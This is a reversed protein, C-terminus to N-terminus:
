KTLDYNSLSGNAVNYKYAHVGDTAEVAVIITSIPKTSIVKTGTTYEVGLENTCYRVSKIGVIDSSVYIDAMYLKWFLFGSTHYNVKVRIYGSDNSGEISCFKCHGDEFTCSEYENLVMGCRSCYKMHHTEDLNTYAPAHNPEITMSYPTPTLSYGNETLYYTTSVTKRGFLINWLFFGRSVKKTVTQSFVGNDYTWLTGGPGSVLKGSQDTINWGGIVKTYTYTRNDGLGVTISHGNEANTFHVASLVDATKVSGIADGVTVVIPDKSQAYHGKKDLYVTVIIDTDDASPAGTLSGDLIYVDNSNSFMSIATDRQATYSDGTKSPDEGCTVLKDGGELVINKRDAYPNINM